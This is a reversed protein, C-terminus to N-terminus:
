RFWEVIRQLVKVPVEGTQFSVNEVWAPVSVIQEVELSPIRGELKARLAACADGETSVVVLTRAPVSQALDIGELEAAMARTLPFGGIEEDVGNTAPATAGNRLERLYDSGSPIPDWLAVADVDKARRAAVAAALTAGLRLGALGVRAVGTTDKLEEIAMEIDDRWGSLDAERIDGSSDGTGFYDFRLVHFGAGSLMKALHRMSRHAALYEHGWPQCLVVARAGTGPDRSPTYLGFLRRRGSGFFFPNM